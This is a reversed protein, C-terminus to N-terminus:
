FCGGSATRSNRCERAHIPLPTAKWWCAILPLIPKAPAATRLVKRSSTSYGRRDLYDPWGGLEALGSYELGIVGHLWVNVECVALKPQMAVAAMPELTQPHYGTLGEFRAPLVYGEYGGAHYAPDLSDPEAGLSHRLKEPGLPNTRGFYPDAGQKCAVSLLSVACFLRRTIRKNKSVARQNV